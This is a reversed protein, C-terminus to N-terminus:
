SEARLCSGRLRPREAPGCPAQHHMAPLPWGRCPEPFPAPFKRRLASLHRLIVNRCSNPSQFIIRKAKIAADTSPKASVAASPLRITGSSRSSCRVIRPACGSCSVSRFSGPSGTGVIPPSHRITPVSAATPAPQSAAHAACGERSPLSRCIIDRSSMASSPVNAKPATPTASSRAHMRLREASPM